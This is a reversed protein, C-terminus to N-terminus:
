LANIGAGERATSGAAWLAYAHAYAALM